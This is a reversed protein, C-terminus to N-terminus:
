IENGGRVSWVTKTVFVLKNTQEPLLLGDLVLINCAKWDFVKLSIVAAGHNM